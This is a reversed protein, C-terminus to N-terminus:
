IEKSKTKKTSKKKPKVAEELEEEASEVINTFKEIDDQYIPKEEDVTNTNMQEISSLVKQIIGNSELMENQAKLNQIQEDWYECEKVISEQVEKSPIPIELNSLKEKNLNGTGISSTAESFDLYDISYYIYKNLINKNNSNIGVIAENTYLNTGAIAKKGISMKFSMLITDKKLLKVNSNKVGEDTIKEKSDNIIGGNLESVSVWINKGDNWYVDTDRRPTGGIKLECIDGLKKTQCNITCGWVVAKKFSEYSQISKRNLEIQSYYGDLVDVIQQQLELSPIPIELNKFEKMDIALQASGRGCNFVLQKNQFLYYWLFDNILIKKNNSTITLAQSNLYYKENLILVCNHLSMGERSIKCTKGEHTYENTYFSTLGGGGYVPYDGTEVQSKVIRKGNQIECIDGLKKYEVGNFKTEEKETYKNIGLYYDNAKITKVDVTLLHTEQIKNDIYKIDYYEVQKTKEEENTWYLVACKVNTNMFFSDSMLIIKKLNYKEILHKRTGQHITSDNFLVGEPVIVACRGGLNLSEAMLQLFLPEGKTGRIKLNKVKDCCSAHVLNKLGFPENALIIDVGDLIEGTEENKLDNYLSDQKCITDFLQGTELLLNLSTLQINNETIDYGHINSKNIAWNIKNPYKANLYRISMSLFGGSGCTPDCISEIKKNSKLKPECLGVMYNIIHRSSYYQGLDRMASSDTGTKLHLEYITGIIDFHLNLHDIDISELKTLIQKLYKKNDLKFEMKFHLKKNIQGIFCNVTKNYFKEMLKNDDEDLELDFNEFAYKKDISYLECREENLYRCLVFVICHKISDQGTIGNRRLIDRISNISSEFNNMSNNLLSMIYYIFFM